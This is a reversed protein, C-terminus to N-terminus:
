RSSGVSSEISTRRGRDLRSRCLRFGVVFVIALLPISVVPFAGILARADVHFIGLAFTGLAVFVVVAAFGAFMSLFYIM